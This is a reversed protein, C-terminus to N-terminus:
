QRTSTENETTGYYYRSNNLISVFSAKIRAVNERSYQKRANM